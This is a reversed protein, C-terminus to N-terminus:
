LITVENWGVMSVSGHAKRDCGNKKDPAHECTRSLTKVDLLVLFFLRTVIICVQKNSNALM